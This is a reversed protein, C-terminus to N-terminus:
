ALPDSMHLDTGNVVGGSTITAVAVVGGQIGFQHHGAVVRKYQCRSVAIECEAFPETNPHVQVLVAVEVSRVFEDEIASASAITRHFAHENDWRICCQASCAHAHYHAVVQYRGRSTASKIVAFHLVVAHGQDRVRIGPDRVQCSGPRYGQERLRGILM